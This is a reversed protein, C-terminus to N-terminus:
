DEDDDDGDDAKAALMRRLEDKDEEDKASTKKAKEKVPAAPAAPTEVPRYEGEEADAPPGSDDDDEGDLPDRGAPLAAVAGSALAVLREEDFVTFINELDYMQNLLEFDGGNFESKDKVRFDYESDNKGSGSRRIVVDRGTEPDSVDEDEFEEELANILKVVWKTSSRWVQVGGDPRETDKNIVVVNVLGYTQQRIEDAEKELGERRLQNAHACVPCFKEFDALCRVQRKNQGVNFHAQAWTYWRDKPADARPPLIRVRTAVYKGQTGSGLKLIKPGRNVEEKGSSVDKTSAKKWGKTPAAAATM